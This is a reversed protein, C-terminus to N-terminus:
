RSGRDAALCRPCLPRHCHPCIAEGKWDRTRGCLGPPVDQGCLPRGLSWEIDGSPARRVTTLHCYDTPPKEVALPKPKTLTTM